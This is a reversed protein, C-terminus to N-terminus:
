LISYFHHLYYLTVKKVTFLNVKPAFHYIQASLRINNHKISLTEKPFTTQRIKDVLTLQTKKYFARLM